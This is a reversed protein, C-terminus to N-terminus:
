NSYSLHKRRRRFLSSFVELTACYKDMSTIVWSEKYAPFKLTMPWMHKVIADEMLPTIDTVQMSNVLANKPHAAPHWEDYKVDRYDYLFLDHLMAAKTAEKTNWNFKECILFTYYAVNLSHQFRSTNFHQPYNKLEQVKQHDIVEDLIENFEKIKPNSLDNLNIRSGIAKNM